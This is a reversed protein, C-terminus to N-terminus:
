TIEKKFYLLDNKVNQIVTEWDGKKTQRYLKATPFWPSDNRNLLWRHDSTYPLLNWFVKGLAGTLQVIGTDVSIVLDMADILGATNDLGIIENKHCYLNSINQMTIEDSESYEIHLSHFEYPLEFLPKFKKLSISRNKDDQYKTNGSWKIGIKIKNNKFKEEWFLKKDKPTFLYPIKNPITEVTTKFAFPLSAISCYYDFKIKKLDDIHTFEIGMNNIINKLQEPTDLIIKAGMKKILPLYRCYQIYDGLAQEKRIYIIKKNLDKDGLWEDKKDFILYKKFKPRKKRWEYLKWGEIYNGKLLKILSLNYNAEVFDPKIKLAKTYLEEAQDFKNLENFCIARNYIADIFNSKLDLAKKYYNLAEEYKGMLKLCNAKNNIVKLFDPKLELAKDYEKLAEEFNNMGVLSIGKNNLADDFDPKAKLVKNLLLLADEYKKKINLISALNNNALINNTDNKLIKKYNLEAKEIKGQLHYKIAKNLLFDLDM